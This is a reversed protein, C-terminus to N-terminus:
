LTICYDFYGQIMAKVKYVNHFKQIACFTM